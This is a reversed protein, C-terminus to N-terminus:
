TLARVHQGPKKVAVTVEQQRRRFPEKVLLSAKARQIQKERNNERTSFPIVREGNAM